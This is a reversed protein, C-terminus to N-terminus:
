DEQEIAATAVKENNAAVKHKTKAVVQSPFRLDAEWPAIKRRDLDSEVNAFREWRKKFDRDGMHIVGKKLRVSLNDSRSLDILADKRNVLLPALEMAKAYINPNYYIVHPLHNADGEELIIGEADRILMRHSSPDLEVAAPIRETVIVELRNPFIKRVVAEKIWRNTILTDHLDSISLRILNQGLIAQFQRNLDAADVRKLGNWRIEKINM